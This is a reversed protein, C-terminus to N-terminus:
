AMAGGVFPLLHHEGGVARSPGRWYWSTTARTMPFPPSTSRDRRSCRPTRAPWGPPTGRRGEDDLDIGLATLLDAAAREAAALDVEGSPHVVRLPAIRERGPLDPRSLDTRSLDPRPLDQPPSPEPPLRLQAATM